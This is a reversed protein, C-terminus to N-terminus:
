EFTQFLVLVVEVFQHLFMFCEDRLNSAGSMQRRAKQKESEREHKEFTEKTRETTWRCRDFGLTASPAPPHSSAAVPGGPPPLWAGEKMMVDDEDRPKGNTM